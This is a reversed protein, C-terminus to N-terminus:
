FQKLINIKHIKIKLIKVYYNKQRNKNLIKNRKNKNENLKKYILICSNGKVM